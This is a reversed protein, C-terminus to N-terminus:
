SASRRLATLQQSLMDVGASGLAEELEAELQHVRTAAAEAALRGNATLQVKVSRRDHPDPRRVVLDEAVLRDLIHTMRGRSLGVTTALRTPSLGGQAEALAAMILSESALLERARDALRSEISQRAALLEELLNHATTRM